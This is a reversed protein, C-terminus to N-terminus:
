LHTAADDLGNTNNCPGVRNITLYSHTCNVIAVGRDFLLCHFETQRGQVLIHNNYRAGLHTRLVLAVPFLQHIDQVLIM